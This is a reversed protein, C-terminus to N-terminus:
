NNVCISLKKILTMRLEKLVRYDTAVMDLFTDVENPDYGQYDVQFEKNIIDTARLKITKMKVGRKCPVFNM